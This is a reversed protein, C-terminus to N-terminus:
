ADVKWHRAAVWVIALTAAVEIISCYIYFSTAPGGFGFSGIQVLAMIAGAAVSEWRAFRHPAIRSILVSAMPITMLIAANLLFQQDIVLGGVNGNLYEQLHPPYMLGFVDCYIYFLTVFVWLAAVVRRPGIKTSAATTVDTSTTTSTTM